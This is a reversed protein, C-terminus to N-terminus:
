HSELRKEDETMARGYVAKFRGELFNNALKGGFDAWWNGSNGDTAAGLGLSGYGVGKDVLIQYYQDANGHEVANELKGIVEVSLM